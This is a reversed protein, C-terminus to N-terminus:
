PWTISRASIPLSSELMPKDTVDVCEGSVANGLRILAARLKEASRSAITVKAGEALAAKATAFGFGSTGGLVVVHQDAIADAEPPRDRCSRLAAL